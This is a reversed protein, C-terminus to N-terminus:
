SLAAASHGQAWLQVSVDRDASMAQSMAEIDFGPLMLLQYVLMEDLLGVPVACGRETGNAIMVVCAEGGTPGDASVVLHVEDLDRWPLEETRGDAHLMRVAGATTEVITM